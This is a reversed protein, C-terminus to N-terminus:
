ETRWCLAARCVQLRGGVRSATVGNEFDGAQCGRSVGTEKERAARSASRRRPQRRRNGIRALAEQLSELEDNTIERGALAQEAKERHNERTLISKEAEMRRDGFVDM